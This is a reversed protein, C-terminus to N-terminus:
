SEQRYTKMALQLIGGIIIITLEQLHARDRVFLKKDKARSMLFGCFHLYPILRSLTAL